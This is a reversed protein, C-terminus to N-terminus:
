LFESQKSIKCWVSVNIECTSCDWLQDDCLHIRCRAPFYPHSLCVRSDQLALHPPDQKTRLERAMSSTRPAEILIGRYISPSYSLKGSDQPGLVGEGLNLDNDPSAPQFLYITNSHIPPSPHVISFVNYDNPHCNYRPWKM